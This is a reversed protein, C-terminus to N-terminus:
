YHLIPINRRQVYSKDRRGGPIIGPVDRGDEEIKGAKVEDDGHTRGVPDDETFGDWIQSLHELLATLGERTLQYQGKPM